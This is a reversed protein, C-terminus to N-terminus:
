KRKDCAGWDPTVSLVNAQRYLRSPSFDGAKGWGIASWSLSILARLGGM